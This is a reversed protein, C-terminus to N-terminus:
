KKYLLRPAPSRWQEHEGDVGIARDPCESRCCLWWLMNRPVDDSGMKAGFPAFLILLAIRYADSRGTWLQKLKTPWAGLCWLCGSLELQSASGVWCVYGVYINRRCMGSKWSQSLSSNQRNRIFLCLFDLLIFLCFLIEGIFSCPFDWSFFGLSISILLQSSLSNLSITM